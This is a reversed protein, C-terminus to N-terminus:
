QKKNSQREKKIKLYAERRICLNPPHYLKQKTEGFCKQCYQFSPPVDIIKGGDTIMQRCGNKAEHNAWGCMICKRKTHTPRNNRNNNM